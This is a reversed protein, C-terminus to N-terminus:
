VHQDHRFYIEKSQLLDENAIHRVLNPSFMYVYMRRVILEEKLLLNTSTDTQKLDGNFTTCTPSSISTDSISLAAVVLEAMMISLLV